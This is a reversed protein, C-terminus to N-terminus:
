VVKDFWIVEREISKYASDENIGVGISLALNDLRCDELYLLKLCIIDSEKNFKSKVAQKILEMDLLDFYDTDIIIDIDSNSKATGRAYSGAIGYRDQINLTSLFNFIEKLTPM